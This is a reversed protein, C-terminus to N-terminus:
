KNINFNLNMIKNEFGNSRNVGDWRYGPKIDFRNNLPAFKCKPLYFGRRKILEDTEEIVKNKSLLNKMPDDLIKSMEKVEIKRKNLEEIDVFGRKWSDKNDNDKNEGKTTTYDKELNLNEVNNIQEIFAEKDDNKNKEKEKEKKKEAELKKEDEDSSDHRKRKKKQLINKNKDNQEDKKNEKKKIDDVIDLTSTLKGYKNDFLTKKNDYENDDYFFM